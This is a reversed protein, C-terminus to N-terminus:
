QGCEKHWINCGQSKNIVYSSTQVEKNGEGIKHGGCQCGGM